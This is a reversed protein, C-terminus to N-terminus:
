IERFDMKTSDLLRGRFIWFPRMGQLQEVLNQMLKWKRALANSTADVEDEKIIAV